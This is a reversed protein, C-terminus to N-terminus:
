LGHTIIPGRRRGDDSNIIKEIRPGAPDVGGM